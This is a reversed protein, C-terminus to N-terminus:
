RTVLDEEREELAMSAFGNSQRRVQGFIMVV